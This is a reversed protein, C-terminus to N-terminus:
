PKVTDWTLKALVAILVILFLTRIFSGGHKIALRSGVMGGAVNAVAMPIAINYLVTKAFIFYLLAAFTATFNIFRGTASASLYDYGFLGVLAFVLFSGAGPGFFGEYFGLVAGMVIAIGIERKRELKPAHIKGIDKNLFTYVAVVILLVLILPRILNKDLMSVTRAGLIAFIFALIGAPIAVNWVIKKSAAYRAVAAGSGCSSAFKNTGFILAPSAGPLFIFLAPISILGGGGAVADVVSAFFGFACIAVLPATM